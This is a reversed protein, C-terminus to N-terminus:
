FFKLIGLLGFNLNKLNKRKHYFKICIINLKM